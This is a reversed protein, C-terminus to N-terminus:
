VGATERENKAEWLDVAIQLNMWFQATTGLHEALRIATDATMRRNENVLENLRRLSIDLTKAFDTQTIGKPELYYEGLIRGPHAPKRNEPIM